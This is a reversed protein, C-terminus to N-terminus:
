YKFVDLVNPRLYFLDVQEPTFLMSRLIHLQVGVVHYGRQHIIPLVRFSQAQVLTGRFAVKM